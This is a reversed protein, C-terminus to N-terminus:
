LMLEAPNSPSPPPRAAASTLLSAVGRNLPKGAREAAHGHGAGGLAGIPHGLACAGGNVNVIDHPLGLDHMAAM